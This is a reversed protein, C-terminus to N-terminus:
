LGTSGNVNEAKNYFHNILTERPFRQNLGIEALVANACRLFVERIYLM